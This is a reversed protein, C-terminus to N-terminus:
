NQTEKCAEYINEFLQKISDTHVSSFAIRLLDGTSIVGSDYRQLLTQRVQEADLGSNLQVCMFYGSNFPLATFLEEYKRDQLTEKVLEFRRRLTEYREQKEREYEDSEIAKVLLSQSLRSVNSVGGRVSGATKDELASCTGDTIGKTAYTVFGVRLGWAYDEKTAGDLKVALINPHADALHAFISERHIGDKYVLGFYADDCVVLVEKGAEASERVTRVIEKVEDDTPTYGTPNNPFNLLVVKKTGEEELKGKLGDVNFGDGSFMPFTDLRAKHGREFILKYNGWFRDPLIIPEGENVFLHGMLNLGHTIGCTVIPLSTKGTLSPNKKRIERLWAERLEKLGYSPAYPLIEGPSLSVQGVLSELRMPLGDDAIAIGITANIGKGKADAAQAMIGAKPFFIERGKGSLLRYTIPNQVALIENLREAQPNM